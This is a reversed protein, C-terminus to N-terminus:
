EIVVKKTFVKDSIIFRLILIGKQETLIEAETANINSYRCLLKGTLDFFEISSIIEDSQIKLFGNTPNPSILVGQAEIKNISTPTECSDCSLNNKESYCLLSSWSTLCLNPILGHKSGIGEIIFVKRGNFRKHYKNCYLVSDISQITDAPASCSYGYTDGIKLNFDFLIGYKYPTKLWVRKNVTDNRIAGFYGSINEPPAMTPKAYGTYYLKKYITDNIVTDGQCFYKVEEQVYDNGHSSFFGYKTFYECYWEGYILNFPIYKQGEVIRTFLILYVIIYFKNM